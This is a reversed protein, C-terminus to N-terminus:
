WLYISIKYIQMFWISIYLANCQFWVLIIKIKKKSIYITAQLLRSFEFTVVGIVCGVSEWWAIWRSEAPTASWRGCRHPAVAVRARWIWGVEVWVVEVPTRSRVALSLLSAVGETAMCRAGATRITRDGGSGRTRDPSPEPSSVGSCGRQEM